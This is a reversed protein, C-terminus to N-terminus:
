RSLFKFIGRGRAKPQLPEETDSLAGADGGGGPRNNGASVKRSMEVAAAASESSSHSPM